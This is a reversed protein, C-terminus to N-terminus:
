ALLAERRADVYLDRGHADGLALLIPVKDVALTILRIDVHEHTRVTKHQAPVRDRLAELRKQLEGVALELPLLLNLPLLLGLVIHIQRVVEGRRM